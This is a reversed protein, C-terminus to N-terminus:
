LSRQYGMGGHGKGLVGSKKKTWLLDGKKSQTKILPVEEDHVDEGKNKFIPKQDGWFYVRSNNAAGFIFERIRSRHAEWTTSTIFFNGAEAPHM